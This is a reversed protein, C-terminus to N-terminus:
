NYKETPIHTDSIVGVLVEEKNTNFRTIQFEKPMKADEYVLFAILIAVIIIILFIIRRM